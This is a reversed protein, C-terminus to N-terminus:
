CTPSPTWPRLPRTWQSHLYKSTSGLTPHPGQVKKFLQLLFYKAHPELPSRLPLMMLFITHTYQTNGGFFPKFWNIYVLFSHCFYFNMYKIYINHIYDKDNEPQCTQEHKAWEFKYKFILLIKSLDKSTQDTVIQELFCTYILIYIYKKIVTKKM